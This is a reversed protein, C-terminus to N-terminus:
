FRKHRKERSKGKNPAQVVSSGGKPNKVQNQNSETSGHLLVTYETSGHVVCIRDTAGEGRVSIERQREARLNFKWM